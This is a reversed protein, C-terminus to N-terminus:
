VWKMLKWMFFCILVNSNYYNFVGSHMATQKQSYYGFMYLVYFYIHLDIFLAFMAISVYEVYM